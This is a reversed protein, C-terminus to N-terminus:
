SESSLDSGGVPSPWLWTVWKLNESSM